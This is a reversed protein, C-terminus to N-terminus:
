YSIKKIVSALNETTQIELGLHAPNRIQATIADRLPWRVHRKKNPISSLFLALIRLRATKSLSTMSSTLIVRPHRSSVGFFSYFYLGTKTENNYEKEMEPSALRQVAVQLVYIEKKKKKKEKVDWM